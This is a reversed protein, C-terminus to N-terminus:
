YVTVHDENGVDSTSSKQSAGKEKIRDVMGAVQELDEEPIRYPSYQESPFKGERVERCYDRMGQDIMRGVENFQKSFKPAVKKHHANSLIGFMDHYVLVQGSCAAGSGIGITPISLVETILAAVKEPICEVVVAFAGAEQVAIADTIVKAASEANTATPRFGGSISVSQPLLGVHGMVAIGTKVITRITSARSEGGELKVADAGAEKVLRIASNAAEKDCVEYSGFPLDSVLLSKKTGRRAASTHHLMADLTVPQTTAHGLVVMGLSDGVFIMDVGAHDVHQATPYDYATVCTIPTKSEYLRQLTRITVKKRPELPSTSFQRNLFPVTKRVKQLHHVFNM